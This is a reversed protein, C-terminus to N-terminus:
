RTEMSDQFSLEWFQDPTDQQWQEGRTKHRSCDCLFEKRAGERQSLAGSAEISRMFPECKGCTHGPMAARTAKDRVVEVYAYGEDDRRVRHTTAQAPRCVRCGLCNIGICDTSSSSSRRTAAAPSRVDDSGM